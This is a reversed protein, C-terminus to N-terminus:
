EILDYFLLSLTSLTSLLPPPHSNPLQCGLQSSTPSLVHRPYDFPIVRPVRSSRPCFRLAVVVKLSLTSLRGEDTPPPPFTGSRLASRATRKAGYIFYFSHSSLGSEHGNV